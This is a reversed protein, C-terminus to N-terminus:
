LLICSCIIRKKYNDRFETVKTIEKLAQNTTKEEIILDVVSSILAVTVRPKAEHLGEVGLEM